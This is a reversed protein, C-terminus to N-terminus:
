RDTADVSLARELRKRVSRCSALVNRDRADRSDILGVHWHRIMTQHVAILDIARLEVIKALFAALQLLFVPAKSSEEFLV